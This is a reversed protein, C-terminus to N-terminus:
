TLTITVRGQPTARTFSLLTCAIFTISRGLWSSTPRITNTSTWNCTSWYFSLNSLPTLPERDEQHLHRQCQKRPHQEPLKQRRKRARRRNVQRNLNKPGIRKPHSLSKLIKAKQNSRLFRRCCTVDIKIYAWISSNLKLPSRQLAIIRLMSSAMIRPLVTTPSTRAKNNAEPGQLKLRGQGQIIVQIQRLSM